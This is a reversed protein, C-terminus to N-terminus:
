HLPVTQAAVNEKHSPSVRETVEKLFEVAGLCQLDTDVDQQVQRGTRSLTRSTLLVQHNKPKPPRKFRAFKLVWNSTNRLPVPALGPVAHLLGGKRCLSGSDQQVSVESREGWLVTIGASSHWPIWPVKSRSSSGIRGSLYPVGAEGGSQDQQQPKLPCLRCLPPATASDRVEGGGSVMIHSRPEELVTSEGMGMSLSMWCFLEM